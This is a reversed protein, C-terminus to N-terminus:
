SMAGKMDKVAKEYDGIIGKLPDYDITNTWPQLVSKDKFSVLGSMAGTKYIKYEILKRMREFIREFRRLTLRSVDETTWGLATVVSDIKDELTMKEKGSRKEMEEKILNQMDRSYDEYNIYHTDNQYILISRIDDFNEKTLIYVQKPHEYPSTQENFNETDIEYLKIEATKTEEKYSFSPALNKRTALSFLSAFLIIYNNGTKVEEPNNSHVLSTIYHCLFNYYSMKIYRPDIQNKELKIIKSSAYYAVMDKLLFPYLALGDIAIPLDLALEISYNKTIDKM